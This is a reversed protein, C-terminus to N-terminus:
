VIEAGLVHASLDVNHHGYLGGGRRGIPTRMGHVIVVDWDPM